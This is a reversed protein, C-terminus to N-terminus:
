KNPSGKNKGKQSFVYLQKHFYGDTDELFRKFAPAPKYEETVADDHEPEEQEYEGQESGEDSFSEHERGGAGVCFSYGFDTIAYCPVKQRNSNVFEKKILLPPYNKGDCMETFLRSIKSRTTLGFMKRDDIIKDYYIHRYQHIGETFAHNKQPAVTDIFYKFYCFLLWTDYSISNAYKDILDIDLVIFNISTLRKNVSSSGM